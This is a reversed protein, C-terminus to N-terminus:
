VFKSKYQNFQESLMEHIQNIWIEKIGPSKAEFIYTTGKKKKKKNNNNHTYQIIHFELPDYEIVALGIESLNISSKYCFNRNNDMTTFVLMKNFLFIMSEFKRPNRIIFIDRMIFPGLDMKNMVPWEHISEIAIYDNGKNLEEKIINIAIILKTVKKVGMKYLEKKINELLLMYKPLRQIPAM